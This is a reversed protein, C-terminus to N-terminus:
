GWEKRYDDILDDLGYKLTVAEVHMPAIKRCLKILWFCVKLRISSLGTPETRFTRARM